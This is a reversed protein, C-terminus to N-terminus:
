RSSSVEIGDTTVKTNNASQNNINLQETQRYKL